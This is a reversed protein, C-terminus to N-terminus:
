IWTFIVLAVLFFIAFTDKRESIVDCSALVSCIIENEFCFKLGCSCREVNKKRKWINQRKMKMKFKNYKKALSKICGSRKRKIKWSLSVYLYWYYSHLLCWVNRQVIYVANTMTKYTICEYVESCQVFKLQKKDKMCYVFADNDM